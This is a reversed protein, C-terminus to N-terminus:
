LMVTLIIEALLVITDGVIGLRFLGQNDTLAQATAAADGDVIIVTPVYGISFGGAVAIILYLLGAIKAYSNPSIELSQYTM